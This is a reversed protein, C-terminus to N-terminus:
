AVKYHSLRTRVLKKRKILDTIAPSVGTNKVMKKIADLAAGDPGKQLERVAAVIRDSLSLKPRGVTRKKPRRVGRKTAAQPTRPGNAFVPQIDLSEADIKGHAVGAIILPILSLDTIMSLRMKM